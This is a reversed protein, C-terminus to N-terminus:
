KLEIQEKIMKTCLEPNISNKCKGISSKLYELRIQAAERQFKEMCKQKEAGTKGACARAAKSLYGKYLKAGTYGVLAAGAAGAAIKGGKGTVAGKVKGGLNALSGGNVKGANKVTTPLKPTEPVKKLKAAVNDKTKGFKARVTGWAKQAWEKVKAIQAAVWARITKIKTAYDVKIREIKAKTSPTNMNAGTSSSLDGISKRQAGLAEAERKTGIGKITAIKENAKKTIGARTDQVIGELLMLIDIASDETLYDVEILYSDVYEFETLVPLNEMLQAEMLINKMNGIGGIM